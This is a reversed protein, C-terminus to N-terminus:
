VVSTGDRPQVNPWGTLCAEASAHSPLTHRGMSSLLAHCVSDVLTIFYSDHSHLSSFKWSWLELNRLKQMQAVSLCVSLCVSPCTRLM